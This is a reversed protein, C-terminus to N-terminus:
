MFLQKRNETIKKKLCVSEQSWLFHSFCQSHDGAMVPGKLATVEYPAM